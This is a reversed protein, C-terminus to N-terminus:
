RVERWTRVVTALAQVMVLMLLVDEYGLATSGVRIVPKGGGGGPQFDFTAQPQTQQAPMSGGGSTTTAVMEQQGAPAASQTEFLPVSM